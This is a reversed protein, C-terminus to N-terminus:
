RSRRRQRKECETVMDDLKPAVKAAAERMAAFDQAQYAAILESRADGYADASADEFMCLGPLAAAFFFALPIRLM